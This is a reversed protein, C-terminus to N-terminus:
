HDCSRSKVCLIATRPAAREWPTCVLLSHPPCKYVVVRGQVAGTWGNIYM